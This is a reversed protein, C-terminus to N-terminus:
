VLWEKRGCKPYRLGVRLEERKGTIKKIEAMLVPAVGFTHQFTWTSNAM